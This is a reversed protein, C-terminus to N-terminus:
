QTYKIGMNKVSTQLLLPVQAGTDILATVQIDGVFIDAENVRGILDVAADPKWYQPGTIVKVPQPQHWHQHLNQM